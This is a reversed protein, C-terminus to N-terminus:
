GYLTNHLYALCCDLTNGNDDEFTTSVGLTFAFVLHEEGAAMIDVEGDTTHGVLATKATIAADDRVTAHYGMTQIWGYSNLPISVIAVGAVLPSDASYDNSVEFMYYTLTPLVQEVLPAQYVVEGQLIGTAIIVSKVYRYKRLGDESYRHEGLVETPVTTVETVQSAHITKLLAM